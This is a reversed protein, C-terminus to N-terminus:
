ECYCVSLQGIYDKCICNQGCPNDLDLFSAFRFKALDDMAVNVFDVMALDVFGFFFISLFGSSSALTLPFVLAFGASGVSGADDLSLVAGDSFKEAFDILLPIV